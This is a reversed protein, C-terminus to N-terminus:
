KQLLNFHTEYLKYIYGGSDHNSFTKPPRTCINIWKKAYKNVIHMKYFIKLNVCLNSLQNNVNKIIENKGFETWSTMSLFEIYKCEREIISNYTFTTIHLPEKIIENVYKIRSQIDPYSDFLEYYM